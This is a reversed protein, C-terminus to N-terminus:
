YEHKSVKIVEVCESDREVYIARYANNLRISRQGARRGKLPEDHFGSCKRAEAIGLNEVVFVWSVFKDRIYDPVVALTKAIKKSWFVKQPM